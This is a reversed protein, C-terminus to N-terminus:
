DAARGVSSGLSEDIYQRKLNSITNNLTYLEQELKENELQNAAHKNQTESLRDIAERLAKLTSM